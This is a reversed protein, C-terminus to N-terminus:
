LKKLTLSNYKNWLQIKKLPTKHKGFSKKSNIKATVTGTITKVNSKLKFICKLKGSNPELESRNYDKDSMQGNPSNQKCLSIINGKM